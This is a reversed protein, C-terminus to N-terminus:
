RLPVTTVNAGVFVTRAGLRDTVTVEVKPVAVDTLTSTNWVSAKRYLYVTNSGDRKGVLTVDVDTASTAVRMGVLAPTYGSGSDDLSRLLSSVKAVEPKATWTGPDSSGVRWLGFNSEHVDKVGADVDDLLEYRTSRIGRKGLALVSQPGYVACAAESAPIHGASTDLANHYGTETIWVPYDAGFATYIRNLQIDLGDCPPKGGSYSHMGQWDQYADIGANVIQEYHYRGGSPNSSTYSQLAAINHLSPGVIKKGALRPDAHATNWIARQHATTTLAWDAPVPGGGRNHDPENLGEIGYCVDAAITAISKVLAVTKAVTQATPETTAEPVVLMLWQMDYKRAATIAAQCGANNPDFAGRFYKAGLAALKAMWADVDAYVSYRFSPHACVGYANYLTRASLPRVMPLAGARLFDAGLAPVTLAAASGQLVNRRTVNATLLSSTM